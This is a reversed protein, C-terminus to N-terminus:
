ERSDGHVRSCRYGQRDLWSIVLIEGPNKRKQRTKEIQVSSSQPLFTVHEGSLVITENRRDHTADSPSLIGKSPVKYGM